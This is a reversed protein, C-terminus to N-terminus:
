LDSRKIPAISADCGDIYCADNTLRVSQESQSESDM